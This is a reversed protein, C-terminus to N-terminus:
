RYADSRHRVGFIQMVDDRLRFLVRYDGARLRYVGSFEGQLPKVDGTGTRAYRLICDFIRLAVTRDLHRVDSRAEDLWEIRFPPM